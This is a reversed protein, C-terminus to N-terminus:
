LSQNRYYYNLVTPNFFQIGWGMASTDRKYRNMILEDQTITLKAKSAKTKASPVEVAAEAEAKKILDAEAFENAVKYFAEGKKKLGSTFKTLQADTTKESLKALAPFDPNISELVELSTVPMMIDPLGTSVMQPTLKLGNKVEDDWDLGMISYLERLAEPESIENLRVPSAMDMLVKGDNVDIELDGSLTHNIYTKGNEVLGLDLLACFTGITAHGCLEM